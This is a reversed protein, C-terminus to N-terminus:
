EAHQHTNYAHMGISPFCCRTSRYCAVTCGCTVQEERLLTYSLKDTDRTLSAFCSEPTAVTITNYQLRSYTCPRVAADQALRWYMGIRWSCVAINYPLTNPQKGAYQMVMTAAATHRQLSRSSTLLAIMLANATCQSTAQFCRVLASSELSPMSTPWPAALAAGTAAAAAAAGRLSPSSKQACELRTASTGNVQFDGGHAYAHSHQQLCVAGMGAVPAPEPAQAGISQNKNQQVAPSRIGAM